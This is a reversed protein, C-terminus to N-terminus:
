ASRAANQDTAQPWKNTNAGAWGQAEGSRPMPRARTQGDAGWPPERLGACLTSGNQPLRYFVGPKQHLVPGGFVTAGAAGCLLFGPVLGPKKVLKRLM